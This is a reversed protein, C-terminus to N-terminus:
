GSGNPGCTHRFAIAFFDVAGGAFPPAAAAVVARVPAPHPVRQDLTGTTVRSDADNPAVLLGAVALLGVSLGFRSLLNAPLDGFCMMAMCVAAHDLDRGFIEHASLVPEQQRSRYTIRDASLVSGPLLLRLLRGQTVERNLLMRDALKGKTWPVLRGADDRRPIELFGLFEPPACYGFALTVRQLANFLYTNGSMWKAFGM